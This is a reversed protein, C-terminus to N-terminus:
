VFTLHGVELQGEESAADETGVLDFCYFLLHATNLNYDVPVGNDFNSVMKVDPSLIVFNTKPSFVKGLVKIVTGDPREIKLTYEEELSADLTFSTTNTALHLDYNWGEGNPM